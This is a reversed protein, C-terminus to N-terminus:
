NMKKRIYKGGSAKSYKIWDSKPRKDLTHLYLRIKSKKLQEVIAQSVEREVDDQFDSMWYITDVELLQSMSLIASYTSRSLNLWEYHLEDRRALNTLSQPSHWKPDFPNLHKPPDAFFWACHHTRMRGVNFTNTRDQFNTWLRSIACGDVEVFYAYPFDKLIETRLKDAYPKMSPSSDLIIGIRLATVPNGLVEATHEKESNKTEQYKQVWKPFAAQESETLLLQNKHLDGLLSKRYKTSDTANLKGALFRNRQEVSTFSPYSLKPALSNDFTTLKQLREDQEKKLNDILRIAYKAENEKTWRGKGERADTIGPALSILTALLLIKLYKM